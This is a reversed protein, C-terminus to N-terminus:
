GAMPLSIVDGCKLRQAAAQTPRSPRAMRLITGFASALLGCVAIFGFWIM